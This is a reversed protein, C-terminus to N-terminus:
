YIDSYKVGSNENLFENMSATDIFLFGGRGIDSDLICASTVNFGQQRAKNILEQSTLVADIKAVAKNDHWIIM